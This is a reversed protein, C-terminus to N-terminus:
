IKPVKVRCKAAACEAQVQAGIKERHRWPQGAPWEVDRSCIRPFRHLQCRTLFVLEHDGHRGLDGTLPQRAAHLQVVRFGNRQNCIIDDLTGAVSAGDCVQHFGARMDDGAILHHFADGLHDVVDLDLRGKGVAGLQHGHVFRDASASTERGLGRIDAILHGWLTRAEWWREYAANNRFGLFLSLALGFISAAQFNIHIIPVGTHDLVLIIVSLAIFFAIKPAVKPVISGKTILFLTLFTPNKRVIM